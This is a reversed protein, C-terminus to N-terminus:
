AHIVLQTREPLHQAVGQIVDGKMTRWLTGRKSTGLIVENCGYTVAFDVITEAVNEAVTYLFRIPVGKADAQEKIYQAAKQADPDTAIDPKYAPGLMPIAIHRVYLFLVEAHFSKAQDLAFAVLKPAGQTAVLYRSEYAASDISTSTGKLDIFQGVITSVTGGIAGRHHTLWRASLGVIVIMGAFALAHPKEYAITIWVVIMFIALASMIIHEWKKLHIGTTTVCSGLNVAVAGVVGIAYLDGLHGVDQVM